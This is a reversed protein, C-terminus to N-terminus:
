VTQIERCIITVEELSGLALRYVIDVFSILVINIIVFFVLM